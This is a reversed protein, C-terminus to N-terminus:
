HIDGDFPYEEKNKVDKIVVLKDVIESDLTVNLASMFMKAHANKVFSTFLLNDEPIQLQLSSHLNMGSFLLDWLATLTIDEPDCLSEIIMDPDLTLYEVQMESGGDISEVEYQIGIIPVCNIVGSPSNTNM